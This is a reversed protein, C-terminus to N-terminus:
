IVFVIHCEGGRLIFDAPSSSVGTAELRRRFSNQGRVPYVQRCQREFLTPLMMNSIEAEILPVIEDNVVTLSINNTSVVEYFFTLDVPTGTVSGFFGFSDVTCIATEGEIPVTAGTASVNKLAGNGSPAMVLPILSPASSQLKHGGEVMPGSLPASSPSVVGINQLGLTENTASMTSNQDILESISSIASASNSPSYSRTETGRETPRISPTSSPQLMISSPLESPFISQILLPQQPLEMSPLLTTSFTPTGSLEYTPFSSPLPQLDRVLFSPVPSVASPTSSDPHSPAQSFGRIFLNDFNVNREKPTGENHRCEDGDCIRLLAEDIGIRVNQRHQRTRLQIQAAVSDKSFIYSLALTTLGVLLRDTKSQRKRKMNTQSLKRTVELDDLNLETLV